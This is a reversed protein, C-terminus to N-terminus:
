GLIRSDVNDLSGTLIINLQWIFLLENLEKEKKKHTIDLNFAHSSDSLCSRFQGYKEEYIPDYANSKSYNWRNRVINPYDIDFKEKFVDNIFNIKRLKKNPIRNLDFSQFTLKISDWVLEHSGLSSGRFTIKIYGQDTSVSGYYNGSDLQGGNTSLTSLEKCDEKTFYSSYTGCLRLIENASFFSSYYLTSRFLM